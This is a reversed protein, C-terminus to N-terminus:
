QRCKRSERELDTLNLKPFGSAGQEAYVDCWDLSKAGQPIDDKPIYGRAMLGMEWMRSILKRAADEGPKITKQGSRVQRDKDAFVLVCKVHEPPEWSAMGVASIAAFTPIGTALQVAIGTEVGETVAVVPSKSCQQALWVSAGSISTDDPVAMVKKAEIAEPRFGDATLYTRHLCVSKGNADLIASLMCPFEGLRKGDEDHYGLAPHCRITSALFRYDLRRRLLYLRVPEADKESLASAGGWVRKLSARKRTAAEHDIKPEPPAARRIEPIATKSDESYGIVEAVAELTEKFGWDNVWMLLSIGKSYIGCTNCCGGGTERLDNFLRFGDTGGHRPCPHHKRPMELAANFAGGGLRGLIYEWQGAALVEVKKVDIM